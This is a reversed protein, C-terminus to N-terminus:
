PPRRRGRPAPAGPAGVVGREIRGCLGGIEVGVAPAPRWGGRVRGCPPTCRCSPRMSPRRRPGGRRPGPARGQDDHAALVRVEGVRARSASITAPSTLPSPRWSRPRRGSDARPSAPPRRRRRDEVEEGRLVAPQCAARRVRGRVRHDIGRRAIASASPRSATVRARRAAAGRRGGATARCAHRCGRNPAGRARADAAEALRISRSCCAVM